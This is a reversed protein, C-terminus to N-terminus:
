RAVSSNVSQKLTVLRWGLLVDRTSRGRSTGYFSALLYFIFLLLDSPRLSSQQFFYRGHTLYPPLLTYSARMDVVSNGTHLQDHSFVQETDYGGYLDHGRYWWRDVKWFPDQTDGYYVTGIHIKPPNVKFGMWKFIFGIFPLKFRDGRRCIVLHECIADRIQSDVMSINQVLLIVDWRKKRAHIIWEIFASREKDQWTRSNLWSGCEDLVLLGYTKEGKHPSGIGLADFDVPRPKDPIRTVLSRRDDAKGFKRGLLPTLFLDMNTAVRRGQRLYDRIRGVAALSKGAGLRGTVFYVAM